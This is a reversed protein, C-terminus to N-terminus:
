IKDFVDFPQPMNVRHLLVWSGEHDSDVRSEPGVFLVESHAPIQREFVITTNVFPALWPDPRREPDPMVHGACMSASIWTPYAHSSECLRGFALWTCAYGDPFVLDAVDIITGREVSVVQRIETVRVQRTPLTGLTIHRLDQPTATWHKHSWAM